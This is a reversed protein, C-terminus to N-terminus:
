LRTFGCTIRTGHRQSARPLALALSESEALFSTLGRQMKRSSTKSTAQQKQTAESKASFPTFGVLGMSLTCGLYHRGLATSQTSHYSDHDFSSPVHHPRPIIKARISYDQAPVCGSVLSCCYPAACFAPAQANTTHILLYFYHRAANYISGLEGIMLSPFLVVCPHM